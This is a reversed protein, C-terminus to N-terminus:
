ISQGAIMEHDKASSVVTHGQKEQVTQKCLRFGMVNYSDYIKRISLFNQWHKKEQYGTCIM